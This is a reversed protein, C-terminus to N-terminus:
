YTCYMLLYLVDDLVTCLMVKGRCGGVDGCSICVHEGKNFLALVNIDRGGCYPPCQPGGGGRGM